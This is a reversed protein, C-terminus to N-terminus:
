DDWEYTKYMNLLKDLERNHTKIAYCKTNKFVDDYTTKEILLDDYMDIIFEHVRINDILYIIESEPVYYDKDIDWNSVEDASIKTYLTIDRVNNKYDEETLVIREANNVLWKGLDKIKEIYDKYTINM